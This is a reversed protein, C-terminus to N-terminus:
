EIKVDSWVTWDWSHDDNPGPSIELRVRGGATLAPLNAEFHQLGRDKPEDAPHILRSFLIRQDTSTSWIVRFEAGDTHGEGSYAGPPYGFSGSIHHAGPPPTFVMLSPAHVVLANHGDIEIASPPTFSSVEDPIPSFMAYKARILQQEYEAKAKSPTVASFTVAASPAVYRADALAVQLRLSRVWRKPEGGQTELWSDADSVIPNVLFGARAAPLPLRHLITKGETDVLALEVIPPKYLFNRARGLLTSALDIEVWLPTHELEGLYFDRGVGLTIQKLPRPALSAVPPVKDRRRWLQYSGESLVYRYYHPFLNLLHSDDMLLPREDIAQLKFMVYDPASPGAYYAANLADLHPTYASYSQFIPRPRYNLRNMLAIGQEFGLVDVSSKGVIAAIKPLKAATQLASLQNQYDQGTQRWDRAATLNKVVKEQAIGGAYQVVSPLTDYVGWIGLLAAPVLLVRAVWRPGATDRFLAPFALSVLLTSYFFGLMHGDARVFGHKWNLYLFAGLVAFLALSRPRDPQTRFHWVGYGALLALIVLAKWFPPWPTPLGMTAQYGGSIDLSNLVYAPLATLPQHCLLWITAFAIAFVGPFILAPAVRRRRYLSSAVVTAVVVGSLMLNTFKIVSLFALFVAALLAVLRPPRDLGNLLDWGLLVILFTQLADEYGVGFLVFFAFFFFRGLGRLDRGVRLLLTATVAAELLQWGLHAWLLSGTYTRGLLFGLPGYTFVVDRGFAFGHELFYTLAMRWSADLEIAPPKPLSFTLLALLLWLLVEGIRRSAPSESADASPAVPASSPAM